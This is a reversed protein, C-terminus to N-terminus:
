KGRASKRGRPLLAVKSEAQAEPEGLLFKGYRLFDVRQISKSEGSFWGHVAQKSVGVARGLEASSNLGSHTYAIHLRQQFPTVCFAYEGMPVAHNVAPDLM